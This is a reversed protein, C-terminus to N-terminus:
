GLGYFFTFLLHFLLWVILLVIVLYVLLKICLKMRSPSPACVYRRETLNRNSILIVVIAFSPINWMCLLKSRDNYSWSLPLTLSARGELWPSNINTQKQGNWHKWYCFILDYYFNFNPLRKSYLVSSCFLVLIFLVGVGFVVDNWFLAIM